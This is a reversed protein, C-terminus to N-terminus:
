PSNPAWSGRRPSLRHFGAEDKAAPLATRFSNAEPSSRLEHQEALDAGLLEALERRQRDRLLAIIAPLDDAALAAWPTAFKERARLERRREPSSSPSPKAVSRSPLPVRTLQASPPRSRSLFAVGSVIAAILLLLFLSKM